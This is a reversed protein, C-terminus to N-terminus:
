SDTAAAEVNQARRNQLRSRLLKRARCLGSMVTGAPHGTIGAIEEYSFGEVDALLVVARCGVPLGYIADAIEDDLLNGLDGRDASGSSAMGPEEEGPLCSMQAGEKDHHNTSMLTNSLIALLWAKVGDEGLFGDFLKRAKVYTSQVLTKAANENETMHLAFRYVSDIHALATAEFGETKPEMWVNSSM